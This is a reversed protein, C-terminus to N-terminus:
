SRGADIPPRAVVAAVAAALGPMVGAPEALRYGVARSAPVRDLPRACQSCVTVEPAPAGAFRLRCDPCCPHTM